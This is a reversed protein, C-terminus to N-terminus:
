HRSLTVLVLAVMAAAQLVAVETDGYVFCSSMTLLPLLLLLLRLVKVSLSACSCNQKMTTTLSPSRSSSNAASEEGTTLTMTGSELMSSPNMTATGKVTTAERLLVTVYRLMGTATM